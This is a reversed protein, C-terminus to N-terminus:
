NLHTLLVIPYAWFSLLISYDPFSPGTHAGTLEQTTHFASLHEQMEPPSCLVWSLQSIVARDHPPQLSGVASTSLFNNFLLQPRSEFLGITSTLVMTTQTTQPRLDLIRVLYLFLVM